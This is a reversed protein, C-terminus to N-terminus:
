RVVELIADVVLVGLFVPRVEKAFTTDTWHVHHLERVKEEHADLHLVRWELAAFERDDVGCVFVVETPLLLQSDFVIVIEFQSQLDM